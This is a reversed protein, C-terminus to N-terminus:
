HLYVSVLDEIQKKFPCVEDQRCRGQTSGQRLPVTCWNNVSCINDAHVLHKSCSSDQRKNVSSSMSTGLSQLVARLELVEPSLSSLWPQQENGKREKAGGGGVWRSKGHYCFRRWRPFCNGLLERYGPWLQPILCWKSSGRPFESTSFHSPWLHGAYLGLQSCRPIPIECWPWCFAPVIACGLALRPKTWLAFMFGEGQTCCQNKQM